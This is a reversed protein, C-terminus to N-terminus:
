TKLVFDSGVAIAYEPTPTIIPTTVILGGSSAVELNALARHRVLSLVAGEERHEHFDGVTLCHSTSAERLRYHELTLIRSPQLTIIRTTTMTFDEDTSRLSVQCSTHLLLVVVEGKLLITKRSAHTDDWISSSEISVKRDCRQLM